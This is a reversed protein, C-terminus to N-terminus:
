VQMIVVVMGDKSWDTHIYFKGFPDPIELTPGTLIYEKLREMLSQDDPKWLKHM